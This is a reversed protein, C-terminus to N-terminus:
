SALTRDLLDSVLLQEILKPGGDGNTMIVFGSKRPVSMAAFSHFGPNDGGHVVLDGDDGHIVQWGLAWSSRIPTESVKVVPRIMVEQTSKRLRFADEPKPAMMEVLFTAYEAPTCHLGGASAYRAAEVASARRAPLPAGKLDHGRAASVEFTSNWVYGSSRMGFPILLNARMYDDIDTACVKMGDEFTNCVTTNVKGALHTLVSQLYWYGEGSYRWRDGPTFQIAMPEKESRWNPLGSTHSLVHRATILDLRPDQLIRDSTYKTLPTDLDLVGRESAKLVAYAFVPKSMSGAEFITEAVVPAKSTADVIGFGRRWAVAGDWVVALSAGPVSSASMLAPIRNELDSILTKRGSVRSPVSQQRALGLSIFPSLCSALTAQAGLSFLTRRKVGSSM